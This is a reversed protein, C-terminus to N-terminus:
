EGAERVREIYADVDAEYWLATSHGFRMKDPVTALVWKPSVKAHFKEKAIERATMMRGRPATAGHDSRALALAPRNM